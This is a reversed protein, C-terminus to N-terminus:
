LSLSKWSHSEFCSLVYSPLPVVVHCPVPSPCWSSLTAGLGGGAVSCLGRGQLWLSIFEALLWTLKSSSQLGWLVTCDLQCRSKLRLFGQTSFGASGHCSTKGASIISYYLHPALGSLKHYDTIWYYFVLIYTICYIGPNRKSLDSQTTNTERVLFM